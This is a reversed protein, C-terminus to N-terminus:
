REELMDVLAIVPFPVPNVSRGGGLSACISDTLSANVQAGENRYRDRQQASFPFLWSVKLCYKLLALRLVAVPFGSAAPLNSAAASLRHGFSRWAGLM